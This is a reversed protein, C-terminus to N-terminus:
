QSRTASSPSYSSPPLLLRPLQRHGAWPTLTLRPYILPSFDQHGSATTCKLLLCLRILPPSLSNQHLFQRPFANPQAQPEQPASKPLYTPQYTLPFTHLFTHGTCAPLRILSSCGLYFTANLATAGRASCGVAPSPVGAPVTPAMRSCPGPARGPACTPSACRHHCDSSLREARCHTHHPQRGTDAPLRGKCCRTPVTCPGPGGSGGWQKGGV